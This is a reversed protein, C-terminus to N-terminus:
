VCDNVSQLVVGGGVRRDPGLNISFPVMREKLIFGFAVGGLAEILYAWSSVFWWGSILM